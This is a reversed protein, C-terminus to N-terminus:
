GTVLAEDEPRYTIFMTAPKGCFTGTQVVAQGPNITVRRGEDKNDWPATMNDGIPLVVRTNLDVLTYESRSGGDWNLGYLTVATGEKLVVKRKRYGPFLAAIKVNKKDVTKGFM